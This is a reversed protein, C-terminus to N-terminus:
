PGFHRVVVIDRQRFTLSTPASWTPAGIRLTFIDDGFWTFAEFTVDIKLVVGHIRVPVQQM